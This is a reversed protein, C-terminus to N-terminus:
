VTPAEGHHDFGGAPKAEDPLHLVGTGPQLLRRQLRGIGVAEIELQGEGLKAVGLFLPDAHPHAALQDVVVVGDNGIGLPAILSAGVVRHDRIQVQITKAEPDEGCGGYNRQVLADAMM